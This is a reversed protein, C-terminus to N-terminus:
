HVVLTFALWTVRLRVAAAGKDTKRRALRVEGFHGRGITEIVRFDRDFRALTATVRTLSSSSSSSSFRLSSSCM